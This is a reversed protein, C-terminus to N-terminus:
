TGCSQGTSEVGGGVDLKKAGTPINGETNTKLENAVGQDMLSINDRTHLTLEGAYKEM